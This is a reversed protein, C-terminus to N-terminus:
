APLWEELAVRFCTALVVSWDAPLHIATDLVGLTWAHADGSFSGTGTPPIQAAHGGLQLAPRLGRQGELLGPLFAASCLVRPLLSEACTTKLPLCRGLDAHQLFAQM